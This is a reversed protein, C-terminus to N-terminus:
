KQTEKTQQKMAEAAAHIAARLTVGKTKPFRYDDPIIVITKDLSLKGMKLWYNGGLLGELEELATEADSKASELEAVQERLQNITNRFIEAVDVRPIATQEVTVDAARPEATEEKSRIPREFEAVISQKPEAQEGARRVLSFRSTLLYIGCVAVHWCVGIRKCDIVEYERGAVIGLVDHEALQRDDDCRVVDGKSFPAADAPQKLSKLLDTADDFTKVRGVRIDEDADPVSANEPLSGNFDNADVPSGGVAVSTFVGVRYTENIPPEIASFRPAWLWEDSGHVQVFDDGLQHKTARITTIDGKRLKSGRMCGADDLRVEQGVQFPQPPRDTEKAFRFEHGCDQCEFYENELVGEDSYDARYRCEGYGCQPCVVKPLRGVPKETEAAAPVAECFKRADDICRRAFLTADCPGTMDFQAVFLREALDTERSV